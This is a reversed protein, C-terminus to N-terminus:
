TLKSIYTSINITNYQNGPQTFSTEELKNGYKATIDYILPIQHYDQQYFGTKNTFDDNSNQDFFSGSPELVAGVYISDTLADNAIKGLLSM